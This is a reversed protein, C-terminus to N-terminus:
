MWQPRRSRSSSCSPLHNPPPPARSSPLGGANADGVYVAGLTATGPGSCTAIGTTRNVNAVDTGFLVEWTVTNSVSNGGTVTAVFQQTEGVQRGATSPTITVLPIGAPSVFIPRHDADCGTLLVIGACVISRAFLNAKM